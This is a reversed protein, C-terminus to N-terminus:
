LGVDRLLKDVWAQYVKTINGMKEDVVEKLKRWGRNAMYKSQDDGALWHAYSARNGIETKYGVAQAYYQAGYKESGPSQGRVYPVQIRGDRLAAFFFRRQKDTWYEAQPAGPGGPPYKKLGPTQFVVREAAEKGAQGMYKKAERPFRAIAKQLRDLGEIKVRILNDSM